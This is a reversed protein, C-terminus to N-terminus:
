QDVAWARVPPSYHRELWAVREQAAELDARLEKIQAQHAYEFCRSAELANQKTRDLWWDRNAESTVNLWHALESNSPERGDNRWPPISAKDPLNM